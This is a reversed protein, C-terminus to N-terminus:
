ACDNPGDPPRKAYKKYEDKSPRKKRSSLPIVKRVTNVKGVM